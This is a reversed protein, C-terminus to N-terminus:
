RDRIWTGHKIAVTVGILWIKKYNGPIEWLNGWRQSFLHKYETLLGSNVMDIQLRTRAKLTM